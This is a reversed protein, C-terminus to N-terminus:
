FTPLKYKTAVFDIGEKWHPTGDDKPHHSRCLPIVNSPTYMLDPRKQASQLHHFIEVPSTCQQGDTLKACIVNGHAKLAARFKDWAAPYRKRREASQQDHRQQAEAKHKACKWGGPEAM